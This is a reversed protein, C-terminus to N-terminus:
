GEGVEGELGRLRVANKKLTGCARPLRQLAGLDAALGIRPERISFVTESSAYRIDCAAFLELGAGICTKYAVGIVPKPCCAIAHVASQMFRINELLRLGHRGPDSDPPASSGVSALYALDIGSCFAKSDGGSLVVVRVGSDKAIRKSFVDQLELFTREDLANLKSARNLDVKAIGGEVRVRVAELDSYDM